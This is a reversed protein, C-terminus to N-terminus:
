GNGWEPADLARELVEALDVEVETLEGDALVLGLDACLAQDRYTQARSGTAVGNAQLLLFGAARVAQRGTIKDHKQLDALTAAIAAPGTVKVGESARWLPVFRKHFLSRVYGTESLSEMTPRVGASYRRQDEPRIRHGRAATNHKVGSDYVRAMMRGGSPGHFAVTELHGGNARTARFTQMKSRPLGVAAIGALVGLGEAQSDLTLDVTTDIRRLGAFGISGAWSFPADVEGLDRLGVDALQERLEVLRAPLGDPRALGREDPHGEAFVMRQEPFWGVRHGAVAEELM